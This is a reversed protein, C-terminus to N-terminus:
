PTPSKQDSVIKRFKKGNKTQKSAKGNIKTGPNEIKIM